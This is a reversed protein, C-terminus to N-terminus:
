QINESKNDNDYISLTGHVVMEINKSTDMSRIDLDGHVRLTINTDYDMKKGEIIVKTETVESPQSKIKGTVSLSGEILLSSKHSMILDGNINNKNISHVKISSGYGIIAQVDTYCVFDQIETPPNSSQDTAKKRYYEYDPCFSEKISQTLHTIVMRGTVGLSSRNMLSLIQTHLNRAVEISSENTLSLARGVLLDKTVLITGTDHLELDQKVCLDDSIEIFSHSIKAINTKLSGDKVRVICSSNITIRGALLYENITMDSREGLILEYAAYLGQKVKLSTHTGTEITHSALAKDVTVFSNSYTLLRLAVRMMGKVQLKSGQRLTVSTANIYGNNHMSTQVGLVLDKVILSENIVVQCLENILAMGQCTVKKAHMTCYRGIKLSNINAEEHIVIQSLFGISIVEKTRLSNTEFHCRSDSTLCSLITKGSVKIYSDCDMFVDSQIKMNGKVVLWGGNLVQLTGKINMDNEITLRSDRAIVVDGDTNLEPLTVDGNIFLGTNVQNTM